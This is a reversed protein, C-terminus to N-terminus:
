GTAGRRPAPRLHFWVQAASRSSETLVTFPSAEGGTDRVVQELYDRLQWVDAPDNGAFLALTAQLRSLSYRLDAAVQATTLGSRALNDQLERSTRLREAESLSM